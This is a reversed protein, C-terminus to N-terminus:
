REKVMLGDSSTGSFGKQKETLNGSVKRLKAKRLSVGLESAVENQFTKLIRKKVPVLLKDM